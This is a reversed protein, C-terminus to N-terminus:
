GRINYWLLGFVEHFITMSMYFGRSCPLIFRIPLKHSSYLYSSPLPVINPFYKRFVKVSRNMHVASTVIGITKNKDDLIKNLEIGHEWTNKSNPDIIIRSEDVGMKKAIRAMVEAESITNTGGGAMVIYSANTQKLMQLGFLLRSSTEDSPEAEKRLGGENIGGALIVMIDVKQLQEPSPPPYNKEMLYGLPYIILPISLFYLLCFASLLIWWWGRKGREKRLGKLAWLGAGMLLLVIVIPDALSRFILYINYM